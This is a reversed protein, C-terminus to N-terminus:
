QFSTVMGLVVMLLIPVAVIPSLEGCSRSDAEPADYVDVVSSHDSKNQAAIFQRFWPIQKILMPIVEAKPLPSKETNQCAELGEDWTHEFDSDM